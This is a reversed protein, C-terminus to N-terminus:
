FRRRLGVRFERRDGPLENQAHEAGAPEVYRVGFVNRAQGMLEMGAGLSLGSLTINSLTYAPADSGDLTLREALYRVEVALRGYDGVIPVSAGARLIHRPSNVFERVVEDRARQYAYALRM